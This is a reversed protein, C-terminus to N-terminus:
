DLAIERIKQILELFKNENIFYTRDYYMIHMNRATKEFDPVEGSLSFIFSNGPLGLLTEKLATAKHVTQNFLGKLSIGTKCEIVFLKNGFTFVVDLDNQNTNETNKIGVGLAIDQPILHESIKLYIYEEFWGGTIYQIEKDTLIDENVNPFHIKRLFTKLGPVSRSKEENKKVELEHVNVKKNRYDRLCDIIVYDNENFVDGVFWSFFDYTYDRKQNLQKTEYQVNYATLYEKIGIRYNLSLVGEYGEEITSPNNLRLIENKPFPIYYFLSDFGSFVEYMALSMYKTGGTLNVIYKKGKELLDLTSQIMSNWNEEDILHMTKPILNTSKVELAKLLWDKKVQMKRSYIFLLEDGEQYMEKIFIYNPITQDSILSVIIRSM